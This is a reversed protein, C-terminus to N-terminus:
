KWERIEGIIEMMHFALPNNRKFNLLMCGFEISSGEASIKTNLVKENKEWSFMCIFAPCVKRIENVHEEVIKKKEEIEEETM